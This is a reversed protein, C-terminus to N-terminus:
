WYTVNKLWRDNVVVNGEDAVAGPISISSWCRNPPMQMPDHAWIVTSWKPMIKTKWLISFPILWKFARAYAYSFYCFVVLWTIWTYLLHTMYLDRENWRIWIPIGFSADCASKFSATTKKRVRKINVFKMWKETLKWAKSYKKDDNKHKFNLGLLLPDSITEM